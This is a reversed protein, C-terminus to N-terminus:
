VSEQKKEQQCESIGGVLRTWGRPSSPFGQLVTASIIRTQKELPLEEASGWALEVCVVWFRKGLLELFM